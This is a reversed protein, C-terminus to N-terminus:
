ACENNQRAHPRWDEFFWRINSAVPLM